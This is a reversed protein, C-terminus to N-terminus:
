IAHLYSSNITCRLYQTCERPVCYFVNSIVTGNDKVRVTNTSVVIERTINRNEVSNMSPQKQM